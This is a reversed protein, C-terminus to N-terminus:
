RLIGHEILSNINTIILDHMRPNLEKLRRIIKERNARHNSLIDNYYTLNDLIILQLQPPPCHDEFRHNFYGAWFPLNEERERLDALDRIDNEILKLNIFYNAVTEWPTNSNEAAKRSVTPDEDSTLRQLTESSTNGHTAVAERIDNRAYKNWFPLPENALKDLTEASTSENRAVALRIEYIPNEALQNLERPDISQKANALLKKIKPHNLIEKREAGARSSDKLYFDYLVSLPTHKNARLAANIKSNGLKSLDQLRQPDTATQAAAIKRKIKYNTIKTFFSM